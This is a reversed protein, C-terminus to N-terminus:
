ASTTTCSIRAPRTIPSTARLASPSASNAAFRDVQEFTYGAARAITTPKVTTGDPQAVPAIMADFDFSTQQGQWPARDAPRPMPRQMQGFDFLTIEPAKAFLTLWLQEAYRDLYRCAAPTWGAAATAAPSSTKLIASSPTAWISSSTSIAPRTARKPAPTSATSSKPETELNFGLGQFHEYWNPYKIVVKVKPNVAKAPKIVLNRAAEDDSGLRFTPGARPRGQGPHLTRVQLQHLLFRRPHNRRVAQRHIRRDGQTEESAGSQHLLLDRLPKERQGHHHHRRGDQIGRDEFFRELKLITKEDAVILDRHTELYIKDVKVQRSIENWRPELWNPDGMERVEYVRAYVAVRFNKYKGAQLSACIVVLLLGFFFLNRM